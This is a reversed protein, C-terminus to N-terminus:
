ISESNEIDDFEDEGDSGDKVFSDEIFIDDWEYSEVKEIGEM